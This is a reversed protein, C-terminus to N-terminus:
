NQKIKNLVRNTINEVGYSNSNTLNTTSNTIVISSRLRQTKDKSPLTKIPKSSHSALQMSSTHKNDYWTALVRDLYQRGLTPTESHYAAIAKSWDGHRKFNNALFWAAYAINYEPDFAQEISSFAKPHHLLNIQMCSVDISRIGKARLTNIKNVAEERSDFYYPKGEVNAAWPWYIYRSIGGHWRKTETLSIASLLGKPIRFAQEYHAFHRHCEAAHNLLHDAKAPLVLFCAIILVAQTSCHRLCNKLWCLYLQQLNNITKYLITHSM